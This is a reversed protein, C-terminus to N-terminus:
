VIWVVVFGAFWTWFRHGLLTACFCFWLLGSVRFGFVLRWILWVWFWALVVVIVFVAILGVCILGLVCCVWSGANFDGCGVM